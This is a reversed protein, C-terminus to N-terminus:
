KKRRYVPPYNTPEIPEDVYLGGKAGREMFNLFEDHLAYLYSLRDDEDYLASKINRDRMFQDVEPRAIFADFDEPDDGDAEMGVYIQMMDEDDAANEKMLVKKVEEAIIKQLQQRTIRMM